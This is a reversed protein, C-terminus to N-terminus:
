KMKRVLFILGMALIVPALIWLNLSADSPKNFHTSLRNGAHCSIDSCGQVKPCSMSFSGDPIPSPNGAHCSGDPQTCGAVPCPTQADIVAPLKVSSTAAAAIAFVAVAAVIFIVTTVIVNRIV